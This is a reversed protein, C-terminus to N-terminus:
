YFPKQEQDLRIQEKEYETLEIKTPVQGLSRQVDALADKMLENEAMLQGMQQRLARLEEEEVGAGEKELKAMKYKYSTYIISLPIGFIALIAIIPIFAEVFAM